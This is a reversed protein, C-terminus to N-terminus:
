EPVIRLEHIAWPSEKTSGTQTVRVVQGTVAPFNIETMGENGAGTVVPAGIEGGKAYVYVEYGRPHADKTRSSDLVIGKIAAPRSMDIEFWQGAEQPADTEWFTDINEDFALAAAATNASANFTYFRSRIRESATAAEAHLEPHGVFSEALDLAETSELESLGALVARMFDPNGAALALAEHFARVSEEVPRESPLRLLRIYGNLATARHADSESALALARVENLPTATPWGSLAAIAADQVISDDDGCASIVLPLLIDDGLACFIELAGARTLSTPAM